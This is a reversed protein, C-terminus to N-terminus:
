CKLAKQLHCAKLDEIFYIKHKVYKKPISKPHTLLNHNAQSCKHPDFRLMVFYNQTFEPIVSFVLRRVHVLMEDFSVIPAVKNYYAM